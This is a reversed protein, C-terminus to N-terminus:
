RKPLMDARGRAFGSAIWNAEASRLAKGLAAGQLDPQLDAATLPFVQAAGRDAEARDTPDILSTTMAARLALASLATEAGYRYGLPGATHDSAAATQLVSLQRQEAKTLRLRDTEGGLVMMRRQWDPSLGAKHEVHMLVALLSASAGPLVQALAGCAAMAAVAPAPDPAALLKRMEHGIRERSQRAIGEIHDACAALGDADIGADPDGYWAHFRFFRLIRLYDERIRQGADDIFRVRRARLDPLGGLPDAVTGDPAAYLANMTFDRRQADTEMDDAYAVVARRGDTAVDRRFTTVEFPQGGVIVTVTGHDIGTPVVRLGAAKALGMVTEPYADTCLDLDGVAAGLLANRVCGGVFWAQHGAGSLMTCVMQADRNRLWDADIKM